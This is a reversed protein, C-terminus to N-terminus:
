WQSWEVFYNDWHDPFGYAEFCATAFFSRYGILPDGDIDGPEDIYSTTAIPSYTPPSTIKYLAAVIQTRNPVVPNTYIVLQYTEGASITVPVPSWLWNPCGGPVVMSKEIALKLNFHTGSGLRWDNGLFAFYGQWKINVKDQYDYPTYAQVALIIHDSIGISPAKFTIAATQHNTQSMYGSMMMAGNNPVASNDLYGWNNGQDDYPITWHSGKGLWNNIDFLGNWSDFTSYFYEAFSETPIVLGVGLLVAVLIRRIKM